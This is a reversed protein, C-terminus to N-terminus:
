YEHMDRYFKPSPMDKTVTVLAKLIAERQTKDDLLITKQIGELLRLQARKDQDNMETTGNILKRIKEAVGKKQHKRIVNKRDVYAM